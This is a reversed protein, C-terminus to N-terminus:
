TADWGPEAAAAALEVGDGVSELHERAVELLVSRFHNAVLATATPLLTQFAEVLREAREAESMPAERLPARVHEDFMAVAAEAISRTMEHQRRALALLYENGLGRFLAPPESLESPPVPRVDLVADVVLAASGADTSCVVLRAQAGPAPSPLGFRRRLDLVPVVGDHEVVGEMWPPM